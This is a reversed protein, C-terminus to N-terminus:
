NNKHIKFAQMQYTLITTKPKTCNQLMMLPMFARYYRAHLPSFLDINSEDKFKKTRHKSHEHMYERNTM